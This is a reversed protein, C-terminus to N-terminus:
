TWFFFIFEKYKKFLPCVTDEIEKKNLIYKEKSFLNVNIDGLIFLDNEETNLKSFDATINDIFDSKDPPRYFIGVTFPKTKPLLIDIFINEISNSFIFKQNFNIDNRVYCAVGGGHRNRDCRILSYKDIKIESNEVSDDLKSETIGIVAANSKEAISRVEDIKPLLSNINIHLFHLGKKNFIEWVNEIQPEQPGPNPNIDGSLMLLLQYFNSHNKFKIKSMVMLCLNTKLLEENIYNSEQISKITFFYKKSSNLFPKRPEINIKLNTSLFLTIILFLLLYIFNFFIHRRKKRILVNYLFCMLSLVPLSVSKKEGVTETSIFSKVPLILTQNYFHHVPTTTGSIVEDLTDNIHEFFSENTLLYFLYIFIILMFFYIFFKNVLIFAIYIVYFLLVMLALIIHYVFNFFYYICKSIISVRQFILYLLIFSLIFTSQDINCNSENESICTTKSLNVLVILTITITVFIYILIFVIYFLKRLFILILNYIRSFFNYFINITTFLFTALLSFSNFINRPLIVTLLTLFSFLIKPLFNSTSPTPTTPPFNSTSSTPTTPLSNSTSSTPTTPPQSPSSTKNKHLPKTTPPSPTTNLSPNHIYECEEWKSQRLKSKGTTLAHASYSHSPHLHFSLPKKVAVVADNKTNEIANIFEKALKLNGSEILHINDSYYFRDNLKGDNSKWDEDHQLYYINNLNTSKEKLISNTISIKNRRLSTPGDRPLIGSLIVNIHPHYYHVKRSIEVLAEAIDAPRNHDLNNTGCHVIITKIKENFRTNRVRWLVHQTCDGGIGNNLTNPFYRDWVREYRTLGSVISDGIILTESCANFVEAAQKKQLKFWGTKNDRSAPISAPSWANSM